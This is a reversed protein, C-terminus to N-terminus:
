LLMSQHNELFNVVLKLEDLTADNKIRNAKMSIIQINTKVYGKNPDIRDISPSDDMISTNTKSLLIGIIQCYEPIIIDSLDLDFPINKRKSKSKISFFLQKEYNESRWKRSWERKLELPLARRYNSKQKNIRDKNRHYHEKNRSLIIEKNKQYYKRRTELLKEHNM